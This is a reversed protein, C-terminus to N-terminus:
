WPKRDCRLSLTKAKGFIAWPFHHGLVEDLSEFFLHHILTHPNSAAWLQLAEKLEQGQCQSPAPRSHVHYNFEDLGVESKTQDSLEGRLIENVIPHAAHACPFRYAKTASWGAFPSVTGVPLLPGRQPKRPMARPPLRTYEIPPPRLSM